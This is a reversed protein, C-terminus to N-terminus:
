SEVGPLRPDPHLAQPPAAESAMLMDSTRDPDAYKM